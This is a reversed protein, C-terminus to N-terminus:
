LMFDAKIEGKFEKYFHESPILHICGKIEEGIEKSIKKAIRELPKNVNGLPSAWIIIEIDKNLICSDYTELIEVKIGVWYDNLELAVKEKLVELFKDATPLVRLPKNIKKLKVKESNVRVLVFVM